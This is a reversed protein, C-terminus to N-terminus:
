SRSLKEGLALLVVANKTAMTGLRAWTGRDRARLVLVTGVGKIFRAEEWPLLANKRRLGDRSVEIPGISITEGAEIRALAREAQRATVASVVADGLREGNELWPTLRITRGDDAAFRYSHSDVTKGRDVFHVKHLQVATIEDFGLAIKGSERRLVIGREHLVVHCAGTWPLAVVKDRVVVVGYLVFVLAGLGLLAAIVWAQRAALAAFGFGALGVLAFVVGVILQGIATGRSSAPQDGRAVVEGLEIEGQRYADPM